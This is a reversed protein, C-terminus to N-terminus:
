EGLDSKEEKRQAEKERQFYLLRTLNRIFTKRTKNKRRRRARKQIKKLVKAELELEETNLKPLVDVYIDLDAPNYIQAQHAKHDFNEDSNLSEKM